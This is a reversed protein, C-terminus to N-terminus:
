IMPLLMNNIIVLAVISIIMLGVDTIGLKKNEAMNYFIIKTLSWFFFTIMTLQLAIIMVKGSFLIQIVFLLISYITSIATKTKKFEKSNFLFKKITSTEEM